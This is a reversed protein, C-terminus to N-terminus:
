TELDAYLDIEAIPDSKSAGFQEYQRRGRQATGANRITTVRWGSDAEELSRTLLARPDKSVSPLAGFRVVLKAGSTCVAATRQWVAALAAVFDDESSHPLQDTVNYSVSDPGGVFWNRLWQDPFYSRMGYYPPSTIVWRFRRQGPPLALRRSDALFVRGAVPAPLSAFTFAARRRVSELVPVRKPTLGKKRWYNVASKPKTAYTRPMQNSLYTPEGKNVPGHLIGLLVARLAVEAQTRCRELLRSRLKCIEALTAPHYCNTWFSGTPITVNRASTALLREALSAIDEATIHCLKAGAIAAAVPNSDLGVCPLGLLRAAYLTTGRGCFPDLVWDGPLAPRLVRLPFTLPFM